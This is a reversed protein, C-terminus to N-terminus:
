KGGAVGIGPTKGTIRALDRVDRRYEKRADRLDGRSDAERVDRAYDRQADQVEERYERHAERPSSQALAPM